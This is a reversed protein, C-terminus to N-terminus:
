VPCDTQRTIISRVSTEGTAPLDVHICKGPFRRTVRRNPNQNCVIVLEHALAQDANELFAMRFPPYHGGGGVSPLCDIQTVCKLGIHGNEVKGHGFHITQLNGFM